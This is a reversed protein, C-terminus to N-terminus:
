SAIELRDLIGPEAYKEAMRVTGYSYWVAKPDLREARRSADRVAALAAAHDNRFPGRLLRTQGDDRRVSVYYNGPANDPHQTVNVHNAPVAPM